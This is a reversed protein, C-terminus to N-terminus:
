LRRRSESEAAKVAKAHEIDAAAKAVVGFIKGRGARIDRGEIEDVARDGPRLPTERLRLDIIAGGIKELRRRFPPAREIEDVFAIRQLRQRRREQRLGEGGERREQRGAAPQQRIARALSSSAALWPGGQGSGGEIKASASRKPRTGSAM